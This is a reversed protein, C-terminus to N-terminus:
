EKECTGGCRSCTTFFSGFGCSSCRRGSTGSFSGSVPAETFGNAKLARADSDAVTYIGGGTANYRRVAGGPLKVDTQKVQGDPALMRRAM